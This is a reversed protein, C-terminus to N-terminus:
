EVAYIMMCVSGQSAVWVYLKKTKGEYFIDLDDLFKSGPIGILLKQNKTNQNYMVISRKDSSVWYLNDTADLSIKTTTDTGTSVTFSIERSKLNVKYINGLQNIFYLNSNSRDVILDNILDSKSDISVELYGYPPVPFPSTLDYSLIRYQDPFDAAAYIRNNSYAIGKIQIFPPWAINTQTVFKVEPMHIQSIVMGGLSYAKGGPAAVLGEVTGTVTISDIVEGSLPALAYVKSDLFSGVYLRSLASDYAIGSIYIGKKPPSLKEASLLSYDKESKVSEQHCSQLILPLGIFLNRLVKKATM